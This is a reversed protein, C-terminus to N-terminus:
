PTRRYDLNLANRKNRRVQRKESRRDDVAGEIRRVIVAIEDTTIGWKGGETCSREVASKLEEIEGDHTDRLRTLRRAAEVLMKRRYTEFGRARHEWSREWEARRILIAFPDVPEDCDRCRVIRWKEDLWYHNHECASTDRQYAPVVKFTAPDDESQPGVIKGVVEGPKESM